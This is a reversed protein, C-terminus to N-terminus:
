SNLIIILFKTRIQDFFIIKFGLEHLSSGPNRYYFINLGQYDCNYIYRDNYESDTNLTCTGMISGSWNLQFTSCCGDCSRGPNASDTDWYGADCQCEYSYQTDTCTSGIADCTNNGNECENEVPLATCELGDGEFGSKCACTFSDLTNTCDADAHCNNEACHNTLIPGGMKCVPRSGSSWGDSPPCLSDSLNYGYSSMSGAAIQEPTLAALFWKDGGVFGTYYGLHNIQGNTNTNVFIDHGTSTQGSAVYEEGDM